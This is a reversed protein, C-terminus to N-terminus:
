LLLVTQGTLTFTEIKTKTSWDVYLDRDKNKYTLSVHLTEDILYASVTILDVKDRGSLVLSQASPVVFLALFFVAAMLLYKM